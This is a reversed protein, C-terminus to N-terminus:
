QYKKVRDRWSKKKRKKVNSDIPKKFEKPTVQPMTVIKDKISPKAFIADFHKQDVNNTELSNVIKGNNSIDEENTDNICQMLNQRENVSQRQKIIDTMDHKFNQEDLKYDMQQMEKREWHKHIYKDLGDRKSEKELEQETIRQLKKQIKNLKNPGKINKSKLKHKIRNLVNNGHTNDDSESESENM